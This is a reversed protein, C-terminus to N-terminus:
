GTENTAECSECCDEKGAASLQNCSPCFFHRVCLADVKDFHKAADNIRRACGGCYYARTSTNWWYARKSDCAGRNCENLTRTDM